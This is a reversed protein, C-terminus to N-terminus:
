ERNKMFLCPFCYLSGALKILSYIQDSGIFDILQEIQPYTIVVPITSIIDVQNNRAADIQQNAPPCVLM